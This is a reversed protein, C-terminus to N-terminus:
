LSLGRQQIERNLLELMGKYSRSIISPDRARDTLFRNWDRVSKSAKEQGITGADLANFFRNLEFYHGGVEFVAKKTQEEFPAKLDRRSREIMSQYLDRVSSNLKSDLLPTSERLTRHSQDLDVAVKNFESERYAMEFLHQVPLRVTDDLRKKYASMNTMENAFKLFCEQRVKLRELGTNGIAGINVQNNATEIESHLQEAATRFAEHM